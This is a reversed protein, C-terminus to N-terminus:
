MIRRVFIILIPSLGNYNKTKDDNFDVVLNLKINKM